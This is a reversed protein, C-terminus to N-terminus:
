ARRYSSPGSRKVYGLDELSKLLRAGQDEPIGQFEAETLIQAATVQKNRDTVLSNFIDLMKLQLDMENEQVVRSALQRQLNMIEDFNERSM